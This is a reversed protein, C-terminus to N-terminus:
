GTPPEGTREIGSPSVNVGRRRELLRDRAWTILSRVDELDRTLNDLGEEVRDHFRYSRCLCFDQSKPIVLECQECVKYEHPLVAIRLAGELIGVAMDSEDYGLLRMEEVLNKITPHM